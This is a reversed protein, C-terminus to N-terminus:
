IYGGQLTSATRQKEGPLNQPSSRTEEPNIQERTSPCSAQSIELFSTITSPCCSGTFLLSKPPTALLSHPGGPHLQQSGDGMSPLAKQM